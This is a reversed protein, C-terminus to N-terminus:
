AGQMVPELIRRRILEAQERGRSPHGSVDLWVQVVDCVPVSDKAVAGRFVSSPASAARVVLDPAEGREAPVLNKWDSAAGPSWQRVYLHPPVGHVFGVGLADAAAFLALCGDVNRVAGTLLRRPEGPLIFRFGAERVRRGAWAQWRRFLEERRVLQLYASSEHLFGEQQLQRVLRSASMVSVDAAHALQTANRYRGRPAALMEEPLEPALLVKLMWQNLDSFINAPQNTVARMAAPRSPGERNLEELFEGRFARRGAFDVVGAAAEPANEAAFRLVQEAVRPPIRPAVVIALPRRDRGAARVAQLWAQSWLPVLRDSRGESAAKVQVLYSTGGHEAILDASPSVGPEVRWGDKVLLEAVLRVAQLGTAARDRERAKSDVMDPKIAHLDLLLGGFVLTASNYLLAM